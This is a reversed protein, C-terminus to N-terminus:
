ASSCSLVILIDPPSFSGEASLMRDHRIQQAAAYVGSLLKKIEDLTRKREVFLDYYCSDFKFIAEGRSFYLSGLLAPLNIISQNGNRQEPHM